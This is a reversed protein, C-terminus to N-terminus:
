YFVIRDDTAHAKAFAEIAEDSGPDLHLSGPIKKDSEAYAAPQRVDVITVPDKAEIMKRLDDIDTRPIEM